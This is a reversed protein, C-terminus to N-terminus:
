CEPYRKGEDVRMLMVVMEARNLPDHPRVNRSRKDGRLICHDAAIQVAESFWEGPPSDSFAPARGLGKKGFARQMLVAAEARTVPDRPRVRPKGSAGRLGFPSTPDGRVWGERAAEEIIGFFWDSLAVDSFRSETPTEDLIGGNLAVILKVFEARTARDGGRFQPQHRDLYGQSLFSAVAGEYWAGAPIDPFPSEQALLLSPAFLLAVSLLITGLM